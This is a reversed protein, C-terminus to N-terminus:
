KSTKLPVTYEAYCDMHPAWLRRARDVGNTITFTVARIDPSLKIFRARGDANTGAEMDLRRQSMFGYHISTTIKADYIGAGKMDTVRFEVSCDGGM